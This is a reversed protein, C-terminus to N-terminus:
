LRCSRTLLMCAPPSARSRRDDPADPVLHIEWQELLSLPDVYVGELRAGWDLHNATPALRGLVRGSEVRDGAAVLRPDLDGYTTELDASHRVTVWSKGAVLGSFTVLGPLVSRVDEGPAAALDVGRHGAGFPIAPPAFEHIVSGPVPRVANSPMAPPAGLLMLLCFAGIMEPM